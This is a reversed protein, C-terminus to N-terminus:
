YVLLRDSPLKWDGMGFKVYKSKAAVIKSLSKSNGINRDSTNFRSRIKTNDNVRIQFKCFMNIINDFPGFLSRGKNM